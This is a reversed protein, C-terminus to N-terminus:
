SVSLLPDLFITEDCKQVITNNSTHILITCKQQQCIYKLFLTIEKVDEEPLNSLWNDVLIIKTHCLSHTILQIKLVTELSLDILPIASLDDLDIGVEEFADELIQEKHKNKPYAISYALLINEKVSLYDIVIPKQLLTGPYMGLQQKFLELVKQFPFKTSSIAYLQPKLQQLKDQPISEKKQM